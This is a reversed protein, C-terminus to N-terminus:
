ARNGQGGLHRPATKRRLAVYEAMSLKEDHVDPEPVVAPTNIPAAPRPANSLPRAPTRDIEAAMRGMEAAMAVPSKALLAMLGDADDALKAVLKHAGPLEVLAQMFAPNETAGLSGLIDTKETWADPGLEKMGQQILSQRRGDFERQAVREAARRDIEADTPTTRPAPDGDPTKAALLAEAAALRREADDARAKDAAARATLHAFRRDGQKPKPPEAADQTPEPSAPAAAPDPTINPDTAPAPADPAALPDAAPTTESM